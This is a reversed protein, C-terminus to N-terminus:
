RRLVTSIALDEDSDEDAPIRTTWQPTLSRQLKLHHCCRSTHQRDTASSSGDTLSDLINWPLHFSYIHRMGHLQLAIHQCDKVTLILRTRKHPAARCVRQCAQHPPSMECTDDTLSVAIRCSKNDTGATLIRVIIPMPVICSVPTTLPPNPCRM